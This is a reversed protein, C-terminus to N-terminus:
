LRAATNSKNQLVQAEVQCDGAKPSDDDVASCHGEFIHDEKDDVDPLNTFTAHTQALDTPLSKTLAIRLLRGRAPCVLALQSAAEGCTARYFGAGSFDVCKSKSNITFMKYDEDDCGAKQNGGAEYVTVTCSPLTSTFDVASGHWQQFDLATCPLDKDSDESILQVRSDVGACQDDNYLWIQWAVASSLAAMICAARLCFM